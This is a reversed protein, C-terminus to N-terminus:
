QNAMQYNLLGYGIGPYAARIAEDNLIGSLLQPTLGIAYDSPHPVMSAQYSPSLLYNRAPGRLLPLGAALLGKPNGQSAAAGLAMASSDLATTTNPAFDRMTVSQPRAEAIRGVKELNGSLKPGAGQTGLTYQKGIDRADIDGTSFRTADKWTYAKAIETRAKRLEKVLEPNGSNAAHRELSAELTSAANEFDKAKQLAAPDGSISYHKNHLKAQFRADKLIALEDAAQQNIAAIKRYPEAANSMYQKYAAENLPQGPKLGLEQRALENTVNQNRWAAEQQTKFQGSVGELLSKKNMATPPFVYGARNAERLTEDVVQNQARRLDASAKMGAVKNSVYGAAKDGVYKGAVSGGTGIGTNVARQGLSEAPQLMGYAGGTVAAGTITNAGPILATPVFTSVDGAFASVPASERILRNGEIARDDGLGLMQKGGEYLNRAGSGFAAAKKDFGTAENLTERMANAFGEKGFVNQKEVTKPQSNGFQSRAYELVQAETADDPATIEYKEGQPSTIQYKAM